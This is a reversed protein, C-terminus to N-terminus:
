RVSDEYKVKWNNTGSINRLVYDFVRGATTGSEDGFIVYKNEHPEFFLYKGYDQLLSMAVDQFTDDKWHYHKIGKVIDEANDNLFDLISRQIDSDNTITFSTSSSNTIFDLRIKM